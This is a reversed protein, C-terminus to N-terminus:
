LHIRQRRPQEVDCEKRAGPVGSACGLDSHFPDTASSEAGDAGIIAYSVLSRLHISVFYQMIKQTAAYDLLQRGFPSASPAFRGWEDVRTPSFAEKRAACNEMM